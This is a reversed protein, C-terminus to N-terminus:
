ADDEAQALPEALAQALVQGALRRTIPRKGAIAATDLAAVCDRAAKFSREIRVAIYRLVSADVLIQRDSFLKALVAQLLMDDPATLEVVPYRGLRSALDPLALRWGTPPREATILIDLGSRDAANILHFLATEDLGAGCDEIAVADAAGILRDPDGGIAQGELRIAGSRGRWVEVLHSKGSAPPGALVLGSHPWDPWSDIAAVAAANSQSVLFDERGLAERHPLDLILQGTDHM